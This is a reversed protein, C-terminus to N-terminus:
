HSLSLSLPDVLETVLHFSQLVCALLLDENVYGLHREMYCHGGSVQQAAQPSKNKDPHLELVLRKYSKRIDMANSSRTVGLIQYYNPGRGLSDMYVKSLAISCLFGVALCIGTSKKWKRKPSLIYGCIPHLIFSYLFFSILGEADGFGTVSDDEGSYDAM